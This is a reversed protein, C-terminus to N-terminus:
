EVPNRFTSYSLLPPPSGARPRLIWTTQTGKTHTSTKRPSKGVDCSPRPSRAPAATGHHPRDRKKITPGSARRRAPSRPTTGCGATDGVIICRLPAGAPAVPIPGTPMLVVPDRKGTRSSGVPDGPAVSESGWTWSRCKRFRACHTKNKSGSPTVFAISRNRGFEMGASAGWSVRTNSFTIGNTHCLSAIGYNLGRRQQATACACFRAGSEGPGLGCVIVSSLVGSNGSPNSTRWSSSAVVGSERPLGAGTGGGRGSAAAVAVGDAFLRADSSGGDGARPAARPAARRRQGGGRRGHRPGAAAAAKPDRAVVEWLLPWFRAGSPNGGRQGIPAAGCRLAAM